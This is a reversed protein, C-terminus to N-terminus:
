CFLITSKCLEGGSGNLLCFLGLGRKQKIKKPKREGDEM